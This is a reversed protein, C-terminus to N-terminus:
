EIGLKPVKKYPEEDEKKSKVPNKSSSSNGYGEEISKDRKDKRGTTVVERLAVSGYSTVPVHCNSYRGLPM